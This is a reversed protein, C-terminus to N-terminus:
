QKANRVLCHRRGEGDRVTSPYHHVTLQPAYAVQWGRTVLDLTLLAEEGGLFLRPEYGGAQLFAARRMAAAGALFGLLAPGPLGASPLPSAAMIACAPDERQEPGVLVRASLVAVHPYADLLDAAM